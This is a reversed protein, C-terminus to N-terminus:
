CSLAVVRDMVGLEAGIKFARNSLRDHSGVGVHMDTARSGAGKTGVVDATVYRAVLVPPQHRVVTM